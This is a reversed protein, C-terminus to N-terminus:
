LRPRKSNYFGLAGFESPSMVPRESLDALVHIRRLLDANTAMIKRDNDYFITDELGVRVGGNTAIALMNASLQQKGIGGFAWFSDTPLQKVALGLEMLDTQLGAVNGAIINWYFPPKIFGKNILFQGYHIMGLDFVELEPHVGFDLMKQALKQIMEPSNVSTQKPFNLSSLTLSGMDPYLELSESRKEFENFNRGSLSICLVLDPCFRRIGDMINGYIEKKWTPEGNEDRAHLHVLTIGIETAEHVQEIIENTQIPVNPTMNKTPVMGTPTFNLILKSPRESQLTM